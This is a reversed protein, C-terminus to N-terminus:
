NMAGGKYRYQNHKIIARRNAIRSLYHAHEKQMAKREDETPNGAPKTPVLDEIMRFRLEDLPICRTIVM